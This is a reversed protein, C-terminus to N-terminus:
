FITHIDLVCVSVSVLLALNLHLIYKETRACHCYFYKLSDVKDEFKCICVCVHM